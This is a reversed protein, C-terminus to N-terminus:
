TELPYRSGTRRPKLQVSCFPEGATEVGGTQHKLRVGTAARETTLRLVTRRKFRLAFKYALGSKRGARKNKASPREHHTGSSAVAIKRGGGCGEAERETPKM